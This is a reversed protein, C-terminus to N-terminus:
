TKFRNVFTNAVRESDRMYPVWILVMVATRTIEFGARAAFVSQGSAALWDSFVFYAAALDVVIFALSALAWVTFLRPFAANYEFMRHLLFVPFIVVFFLNGLFEVIVFGMHATSLMQWTAFFQSYSFLHLIGRMVTMVLLILVVILWGGMGRLETKSEPPAPPAEAIQDNNPVTM